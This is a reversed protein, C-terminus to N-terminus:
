AFCYFIMYPMEEGCLDTAMTIVFTKPTVNIKCKVATIFNIGRNYELLDCDRM